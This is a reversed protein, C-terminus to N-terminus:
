LLYPMCIDYHMYISLFVSLLPIVATERRGERRRKRKWRKGMRKMELSPVWSRAVGM